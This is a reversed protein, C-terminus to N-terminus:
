GFTRSVARTARRHVRGSGRRHPRPRRLPVCRRPRHRCPPPSSARVFAASGGAQPPISLRSPWYVGERPAPARPPVAHTGPATGDRTHRTDTGEFERPSAAETPSIEGDHGYRALEAHDHRVIAAELLKRLERHRRQRAIILPLGVVPIVLVLAWLWAIPHRNLWQIPVPVFTWQSTDDATGFVHATSAIEIGSPGSGHLVNSATEVSSSGSVTTAAGEEVTLSNASVALIADTVKVATTQAAITSSILQADTVDGTVAVAVAGTTQFTSEAVKVTRIPGELLLAAHAGSIDAHEVLTKNGSIFSVGASGSDSVSLERVTFTSGPVPSDGAANATRALATGDIRIGDRTAGSVTSTEITVDSSARDALVGDQGSNSITTGSVVIQSSGNTIRIGSLEAGVVIADSISGGAVDSLFMGFTLNRHTTNSVSVSALGLDTATVAVGGTRGSWFGLEDFVAFSAELRGNRVWVFGRRDATTTDASALSDSWSTIVLPAEAAGNLVVDGGWGIVRTFAGTDDSLLRLTVGALDLQLRAGSRVVLSRVLSYTSADDQRLAGLAVLDGAGYAEAREHLIVTNWSTVATPDDWSLQSLASAWEDIAAVALAPRATEVLAENAEDATMGGASGDATLGSASTSYGASASPSAGSAWPAASAGTLMNRTVVIAVLLAIGSTVLVRRAIKRHRTATDGREEDTIHGDYAHTHPQEHPESIM